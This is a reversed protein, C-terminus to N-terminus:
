MKGNDLDHKITELDTEIEFYNDLLIKIGDNYSTINFIGRKPYNLEVWNAILHIDNTKM